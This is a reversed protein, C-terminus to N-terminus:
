GFWSSVWSFLGIRMLDNLVVFFILPMIVFFGIQGFREMQKMTITKRRIIEYFYFVLHGGDLPPLPFLNLLGLNISLMAIFEFFREMGWRGTDGSLQFIAIPGGLLKPSVQGTFLDVIFDVMFMTINVMRNWGEVTAGIIGLYQRDPQRDVGLQAIAYSIGERMSSRTLIPQELIDPTITASMMEQEPSLWTIEIERATAKGETSYELSGQVTTLLQAWDDVPEGNIEVIRSGPTLGAEEAPSGGKVRGIVPDLQARVGLYSAVPIQSSILYQMVSLEGDYTISIMAQPEQPVADDEPMVLEPTVTLTELGGNPLTVQIDMPVPEFSGDDTQRFCSSIYDAWQDTSTFIQGDISSIIMGPRMGAEEAAGGPLVRTVFLGEYTDPIDVVPSPEDYARPVDKHRTIREGDREVTVSLTNNRERFLPQLENVDDWSEVPADNIAVIQDGPLLGMQWGWSGKPVEGITTTNVFAVGYSSILMVYILFALVFNMLPGAVVIGIRKWPSLSLYEYSAGTIEDEPDMGTIKVYGGLPLACVLYETEGWKWNFLPKGFGVAFREVRAGVLKGVIYHGWEHFVVALGLVILFYSFSLLGSIIPEISM